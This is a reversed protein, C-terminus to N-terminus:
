GGPAPSENNPTEVGLEKLASLITEVESEDGNEKAAALRRRLEKALNDYKDVIISPMRPRFQRIPFPKANLLKTKAYESVYNWKDNGLAAMSAAHEVFNTGFRAAAVWALLEMRRSGKESHLIAETLVEMSVPTQTLAASAPTPPIVYYPKCRPNDPFIGDAWDLVSVAVWSASKPEVANTACLLDLLVPIATKSHIWGASFVAFSNSIVENSNDNQLMIVLKANIADYESVIDDISSAEYGTAAYAILASTIWVLLSELKTKM